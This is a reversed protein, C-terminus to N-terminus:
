RRARCENPFPAEAGGHCGRRTGDGVVVIPEPISRIGDCSVSAVTAVHAIDRQKARVGAREDGGRQPLFGLRARPVDQNRTGADHIAAVRDISHVAALRVLQIEPANTSIHREAEVIEVLHDCLDDRLAEPM